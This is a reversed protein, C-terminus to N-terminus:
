AFSKKQSELYAQAKEREGEPQKFFFRFDRRYGRKWWEGVGSKGLFSKVPPCFPILFAPILFYKVIGRWPNVM